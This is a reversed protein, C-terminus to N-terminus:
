DHLGAYLTNPNSLDITIVKIGRKTNLPHSSWTQGNDDSRYIVNAAAYYLSSSFVPDLAVAQITVSKPPVIIEVRQWTEGGDLSKLLGNPSGIYLINPNKNDMVLTEVKEAEPFNKLSDLKQWNQGKDNTKYIGDNAVSVFVTRTDHPNIKIDTIVGNFWKIVKWNKGFDLSKLFGGEATGMYVVSPDYSDVEVAFIAYKERSVRYVEEWSQGADGSRFLRGYRDQYTGLYLNNNNRPDIAIDYINARNTLLNNKDKVQYWNEGGNVTKYLGNGRTGLYLVQQNQPDNTLSLVNFTALSYSKSIFNKATWNEGRDLSKQVGGDRGSFCSFPFVALFSGVFVPFALVLLFRRM